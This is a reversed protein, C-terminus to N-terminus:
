PAPLVRIRVPASVQTQNLGDTARATITHMGIAANTWTFSFPVHTGLAPTGSGDTEGIENVGDFFEVSTIYASRDVTDATISINSGLPLLQRNRPQTIRASTGRLHRSASKIYVVAQSPSGIQYPPLIPVIVSLQPTPSIPNRVPPLLIGRGVLNLIVTKSNGTPEAILPNITVQAFSQGEPITVSNSVFTYDKGNQATGGLFFAVQLDTSTDGTRSITFIGPDNPSAAAQTADVTVTPSTIVTVNVPDSLATNGVSDTAKATIVYNGPAPNWYFMFPSYFIPVTIPPLPVGASSLAQPYAIPWNSVIGLSTTGAFYEVSIVTANSDGTTVTMFLPAPVTANNTPYTFSIALNNPAAHIQAALLLFFMLPCSLLRRM